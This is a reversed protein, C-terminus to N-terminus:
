ELIEVKVKNIMEYIKGEDQVRNVILYRGLILMQNLVMVTMFADEKYGLDMRLMFQTERWLQLFLIFIM